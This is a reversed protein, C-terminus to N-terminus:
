LSTCYVHGKQLADCRLWVARFCSGGGWFPQLLVCVCLGFCSSPRLSQWRTLFASCSAIETETNLGVPYGSHLM